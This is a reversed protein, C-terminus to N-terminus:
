HTKVSSEGFLLLHWAQLQHQKSPESTRIKCVILAAAQVKHRRSSSVTVLHDTRPAFWSTTGYQATSQQGITHSCTPNLINQGRRGDASGPELPLWSALKWSAQVGQQQGFRLVVLCKIGGTASSFCSDFWLADLLISLLVFFLSWRAAAAHVALRMQQEIAGCRAKSRLVLRTQM